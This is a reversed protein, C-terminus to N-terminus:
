WERFDVLDKACTELWIKAKEGVFTYGVEPARFFDDGNWTEKLLSLIVGYEVTPDEVRHVHAKEGIMLECLEPM